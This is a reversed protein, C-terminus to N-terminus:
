NSYSHNGSPIHYLLRIPGHKTKTIISQSRSCRKLQKKSENKWFGFITMPYIM